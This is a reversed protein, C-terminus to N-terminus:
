GIGYSPPREFLEESAHGPAWLYAPSCIVRVFKDETELDPQGFYVSFRYLNKKIMKKSVITGTFAIVKRYSSLTNGTTNNVSFAILLKKGITLDKDALLAAGAESLDETMAEFENLDLAREWPHFLRCRVFYKSKIRPIKRREQSPRNIM